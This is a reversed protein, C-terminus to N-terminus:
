RGTAREAGHGQEPPSPTVQAALCNAVAAYHPGGAVAESPAFEGLGPTLRNLFEPAVIM